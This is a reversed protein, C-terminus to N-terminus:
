FPGSLVKERKKKKKKHQKIQRIKRDIQRDKPSSIKKKM